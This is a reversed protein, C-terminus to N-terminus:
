EYSMEQRHEPPPPPLLGTLTWLPLGRLWDAGHCALHEARRPAAVPVPPPEWGPGPGQPKRPFYRTSGSRQPGLVQM